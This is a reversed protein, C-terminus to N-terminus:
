FTRWSHTPGDTFGYVNRDADILRLRRQADGLAQLLATGARMVEQLRDAPVSRLVDRWSGSDNVQLKM